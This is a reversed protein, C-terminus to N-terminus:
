MATFESEALQRQREWEVGAWFAERVHYGHGSEAIDPFQECVNETYEYGADFALDDSKM